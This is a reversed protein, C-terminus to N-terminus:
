ARSNESYLSNNVKSKLTLIRIGSQRQSDSTCLHKLHLHIYHFQFSRSGGNTPYASQHCTFTFAAVEECRESCESRRKTWASLDVYNPLITLVNRLSAFHLCPWM